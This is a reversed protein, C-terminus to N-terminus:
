CAAEVVYDGSQGESSKAVECVECDNEVATMAYGHSEASFSCLLRSECVKM